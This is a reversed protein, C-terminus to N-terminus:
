SKKEMDEEENLISDHKMAGEVCRSVQWRGSRASNGQQEEAIAHSHDTTKNEPRAPVDTTSQSSAYGLQKATEDRNSTEDSLLDM